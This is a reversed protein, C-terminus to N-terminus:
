KDNNAKSSENTAKERMSRVVLRYSTLVELIYFMKDEVCGEELKSYDAWILKAVDISSKSLNEPHNQLYEEVIENTLVRTLFDLGDQAKHFDSGAFFFDWQSPKVYSNFKLLFSTGMLKMMKLHMRTLCMHLHLGGLIYRVPFLELVALPPLAGCDCCFAMWVKLQDDHDLSTYGRVGVRNMFIMLVKLKEETSSCNM